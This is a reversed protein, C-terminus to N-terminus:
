NELGVLYDISCGMKQALLILNELNPTIEKKIWAYLTRQPVGLLKSAPLVGKDSAFEKLREAFVTGCYDLNKM